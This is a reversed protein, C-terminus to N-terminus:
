SLGKLRSARMRCSEVSLGAPSFSRMCMGLGRAAVDTAVMVVCKGSRFENLVWDREGQSKDGHIVLAPINGERLMRTVDDATRKTATFVLTKVPGQSMIEKVHQLLLDRKDFESCVHVVQRVNRNASVDLSGINVQIYDKMFDRALAQVEKPWTASWMLTQRDPRIQELIKRIQPEFGLDLMRDAEDLVLYTVRRLNTANSELMDILRGPTAICIEVGRNLTRIQPGRPVGGYVCTSRVRSSTGFKECEVQIQMALERTPALVLAIPGDGPRLAPQANIHVIAPLIYALTKGSGTEAIGVMDRGSLAMPWGQCQIPTPRSFGQRNLTEMVYEPFPAEHFHEVPRPINHGSLTMEYQRRFSAVEADSRARVTAHEVYFDKRFTTLDGMANWDPRRLSAGLNSMRDRGDSAFSDSRRDYPFSAFSSSSSSASPRSYSDRYRSPSRRMPSRSRSRSRRRHDAPSRDRGYRRPSRERFDYHSREHRRRDPSARRDDRGDYRAYYRDDRSRSLKDDYDRHSAATSERFDYHHPPESTSPPPPPPPPPHSHSHPHYQSMAAGDVPGPGGAEKGKLQGIVNQVYGSIKDFMQTM